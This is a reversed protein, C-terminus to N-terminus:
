AAHSGDTLAIRRKANREVALAFGHEPNMLKARINTVGRDIGTVVKAPSPMGSRAMVLERPGDAGNRVIPAMKDPFIGPLAPLNGTL